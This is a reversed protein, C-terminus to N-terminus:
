GVYAGARERAHGEWSALLSSFHTNPSHTYIHTHTCMRTRTQPFLRPCSDESARNHLFVCLRTRVACVHTDTMANTHSLPSKTTAHWLAPLSLSGCHSLLKTARGTHASVPRPPPAMGSALLYRCCCTQFDLIVNGAIVDMKESLSLMFPASIICALSETGDLLQVYKFTNM